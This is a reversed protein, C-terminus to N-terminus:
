DSDNALMALVAERFPSEVLPMISNCDGSAIPRTQGALWKVVPHKVACRASPAPYSKRHRHVSLLMPDNRGRRRRNFMRGSVNALPSFM